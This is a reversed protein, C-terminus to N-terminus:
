MAALAMFNSKQNNTAKGRRALRPKTAMPGRECRRVEKSIRARRRRRTRARRISVV